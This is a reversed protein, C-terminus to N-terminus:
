NRVNVTSLDGRLANTVFNANKTLMHHCGMTGGGRGSFHGFMLLVFFEKFLKSEFVFRGGELRRFFFLYFCIKKPRTAKSVCTTPAVNSKKHSILNGCQRCIM